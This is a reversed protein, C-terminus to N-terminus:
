AETLLLDFDYTVSFSVWENRSLLKGIGEILRVRFLCIDPLKLASQRLLEIGSHTLSVPIGKLRGSLGSRVTLSRIGGV